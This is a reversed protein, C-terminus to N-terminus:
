RTRKENRMKREDEDKKQRIMQKKEEEKKLKSCKEILLSVDPDKTNAYQRTSIWERLLEKQEINMLGRPELVRYWENCVLLFKSREQEYSETKLMQDFIDGLTQADSISLHNRHRCLPIQHAICCLKLSTTIDGDNIREVVFQSYFEAAVFGGSFLFFKCADRSVSSTMMETEHSKEEASKSESEYETLVKALQSANESKSAQEICNFHQSSDLEVSECQDMQKTPRTVDLRLLARGRKLQYAYADISLLRGAESPHEDIYTKVTGRSIHYKRDLEDDVSVKIAYYLLDCDENDETPIRGVKVKGGVYTDFHGEPYELCPPNYILDISDRIDHSSITLIPEKDVDLIIINRGVHKSIVQADIKTRVHPGRSRKIQNNYEGLRNSLDPLPKYYNTKERYLFDRVLLRETSAFLQETKLRIDIMVSRKIRYQLMGRITDSWASTLIKNTAELMQVDECVHGDVGTKSSFMGSLFESFKTIVIEIEIEAAAKTIKSTYSRVLETETIDGNRSKSMLGAAINEHECIKFDDDTLQSPNASFTALDSSVNSLNNM